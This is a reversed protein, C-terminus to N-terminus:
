AAPRATVIWFGGHVLVGAGDWREAFAATVAERAAVQIPEPQGTLLRGTPGNLAITAAEAPSLGGEVYMPVDPGDVVVDRWGSDHLLGVLTDPDGLATPGPGATADPVPLGADILVQAVAARPIAFVPAESVQKWVAVALRGTPACARSLNAFAAATDDFFMVGFRSLIVDFRGEGFDTTQADGLMWELDLGTAAERAATIMGASVDTGTVRGDPGVLRHARITTPGSGCGVDLVSEDPQLDAATFLAETVPVFQAERRDAVALWWATRDEDWRFPTSPATTM